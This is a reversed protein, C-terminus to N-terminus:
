AILLSFHRLQLGFRRDLLAELNSGRALHQGARALLAVIKIGAGLLGLALIAAALSQGM